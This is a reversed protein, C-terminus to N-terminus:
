GKGNTTRWKPASIYATKAIQVAVRKSFSKKKEVVFIIKFRLTNEIKFTVNLSMLFPEM